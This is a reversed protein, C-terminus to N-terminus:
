HPCGHSNMIWLLQASSPQLDAALHPPALRPVNVDPALLLHVPGSM